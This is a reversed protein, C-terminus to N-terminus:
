GFVVRQKLKVVWVDIPFSVHAEVNKTAIPHGYQGEAGDDYTESGEECIGVGVVREVLFGRMVEACVLGTEPLADLLRELAAGNLEGELVLRLLGEYERFEDLPSSSADCSM